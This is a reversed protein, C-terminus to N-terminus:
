DARYVGSNGDLKGTKGANEGGECSLSECDGSILKEMLFKKVNGIEDKMQYYLERERSKLIWRRSLLIELARM